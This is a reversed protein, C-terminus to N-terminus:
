VLVDCSVNRLAEKGRRGVCTMKFSYREMGPVLVKVVPLVLDKIGLDTILIKSFGAKILVNCLHVVDDLVTPYVVSKIDEYDIVNSTDFWNKYKEKYKEYSMARKQEFKRIDERAGSITSVRSLAAENLANILAIDKNLHAGYGGSVYLPDYLDLEECLVSFVPVHIDETSIYRIVVNLNAGTLKDIIELADQSTISQHNVVPNKALKLLNIASADREIVEFLGHAVAEIYSNGAALGTTFYRFLSRGESPFYPYFVTNATIYHTKGDILNISPVWELTEDELFHISKPANFEHPHILLYENKLNKYSNVLIKNSDFNRKEASFREIAEALASVMCDEKTAGRGSFVTFTEEDIEADPRVSQFALIGTKDLETIEPYRTVGAKEVVPLIKDLTQSSTFTRVSKYPNLKIGFDENSFLKCNFLDIISITGENSELFKQHLELNEFFLEIDKQVMTGSELHILGEKLSAFFSYFRIKLMDNTSLCPYNNLLIQCLWTGYIKAIFEGLAFYIDGAIFKNIHIVQPVNSEDIVFNDINLGEPVLCPNSIEFLAINRTLFENLLYFYRLMEQSSRSELQQIRLLISDLFSRLSDLWSFSTAKEMSRIDGYGDFQFRRCYEFFNILHNGIVLKNVQLVSNLQSSLAQGCYESICFQVKNEVGELTRKAVYPSDILKEYVLSKIRAFEFSIESNYLELVYKRTPSEILYLDGNSSDFRQIKSVSGIHNEFIQRAIDM